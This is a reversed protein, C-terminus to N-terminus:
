ILFDCIDVDLAHAIKALTSVKPDHKGQILSNLNSRSIGLEGPHNIWFDYVSDYGKRLIVEKVKKALRATSYPRSKSKKM